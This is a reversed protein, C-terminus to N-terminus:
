QGFRLKVKIRFVGESYRGDKVTVATCPRATRGYFGSEM